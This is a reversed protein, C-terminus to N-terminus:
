TKEALLIMHQSDSTFNNGHFDGWVAITDLGVSALLLDLETPTYIRITHSLHTECGNQIVTVDVHTRSTLADFSREEILLMNTPRYVQMPLSHRVVFDRNTTEVLFRGGPKLAEAINQIVNFNESENDFYGISSFLSIIADFPLEFPFARMDARVFHISTAEKQAQQQAARLMQYSRDLGTISLGSQALPIAHRGYGCCLDLLRSGNPLNLTNLIFDIELATHPHEDFALYETRFFRDYWPENPPM